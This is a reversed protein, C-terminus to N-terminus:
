EHERGGQGGPLSEDRRGPIAKLQTMLEAVPTDFALRRDFLDRPFILQILHTRDRVLAVVDKPTITVWITGCDHRNEGPGVSTRRRRAFQVDLLGTTRPLEALDARRGPPCPPRGCEFM